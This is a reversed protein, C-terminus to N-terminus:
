KILLGLQIPYNQLFPSMIAADSMGSSAKYTTSIPHSIIPGLFFVM